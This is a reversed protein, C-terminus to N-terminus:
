KPLYMPQLKVPTAMWRQRCCPYFAGDVPVAVLSRQSHLAICLRKKKAGHLLLQPASYLLIYVHNSNSQSRRTIASLCKICEKEECKTAIGTDVHGIRLPKIENGLSSEMYRICPYLYGDPDMSLM